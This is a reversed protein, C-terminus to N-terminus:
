VDDKTLELRTIDLKSLHSFRTPGSRNIRYLWEDLMGGDAFLIHRCAIEKDIAAFNWLWLEASAFGPIVGVLM